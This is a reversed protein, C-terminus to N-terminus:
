KPAARSRGQWRPYDGVDASDVADWRHRCHYGGGFASPPNPGTDNDKEDLESAHFLKGVRNACWERTLTDVPGSFVFWEFGSDQSQQTVLTRDLAMTHTDVVTAAQSLTGKLTEALRALAADPHRTTGFTDLIVARLAKLRIGKVETLRDLTDGAQAKLFAASTTTLAASIGQEELADSVSGLLGRAIKRYGTLTTKFIREYDKTLKDLVKAVIAAKRGGVIRGHEDTDADDLLARLEHLLKEMRAELERKFRAMERDTLTAPDVPM